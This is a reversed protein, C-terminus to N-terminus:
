QKDWINLMYVNCSRGDPVGLGAYKRLQNKLIWRNTKIGMKRYEKYVQDRAAKAEADTAYGEFLTSFSRQRM